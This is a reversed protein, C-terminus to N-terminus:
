PESGLPLRARVLTGRGPTSEVELWGGSLKARERMAVLAPGVIEPAFPLSGLSATPALTGDDRVENFSAGRAAYTFFRRSRGRLVLTTDLPGDVASLGFLDAAKAAQPRTLKMQGLMAGVILTDSFGGVAGCIHKWSWGKERKIDLLKETLQERKM